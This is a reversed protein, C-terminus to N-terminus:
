FKCFGTINLELNEKNEEGLYDIDGYDDYDEEEYDADYEQERLDYL